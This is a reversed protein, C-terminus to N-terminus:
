DTFHRDEGAGFIRLLDWFKLFPDRSGYGAGKPALKEHM